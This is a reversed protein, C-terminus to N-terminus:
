FKDSSEFVCETVPLVIMESGRVNLYKHINPYSGRKCFTGTKFSVFGNELSYVQCPRRVEVQVVEGDINTVGTKFSMWGTMM